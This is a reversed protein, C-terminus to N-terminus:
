LLIPACSLERDGGLQRDVFTNLPEFKRTHVVAVNENGTNSAVLVQETCSFRTGKAQSRMPVRECCVCLGYMFGGVGEGGATDSMVDDKVGLVHMEFFSTEEVRKATAQM